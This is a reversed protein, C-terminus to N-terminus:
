DNKLLDRYRASIYLHGLELCWLGPWIVSFSPSYNYLPFVGWNIVVLGMPKTVERPAAPSFESSGECAELNSAFFRLSQHFSTLWFKLQTFSGHM